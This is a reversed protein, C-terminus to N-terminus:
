SDFRQREIFSGRDCIRWQDGPSSCRCTDGYGIALDGAGASNSSPSFTTIAQANITGREGVRRQIESVWGAM